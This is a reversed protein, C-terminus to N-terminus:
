NNLNRTSVKVEINEMDFNLNELTDIDLSTIKIGNSIIIYEIVPMRSNFINFFRSMNLGTFITYHDTMDNEFQVIEVRNYGDNDVFFVRARNNPLRNKNGRFFLFQKM